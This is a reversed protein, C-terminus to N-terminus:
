ARKAENAERNIVVKWIGQSGPIPMPEGLPELDELWLGYRSTSSCDILADKSDRRLLWGVKAVNAICVIAKHPLHRANEPMALKHADLNSTWRKVEAYAHHDYGAGAHIAIRQGELSRFRDHLRTEITKYGILSAWPQHLTIARMEEAGLEWEAEADWGCKKCAPPGDPTAEYHVAHNCKPCRAQERM